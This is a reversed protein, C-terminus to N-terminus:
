NINTISKIKKKKFDKVLISCYKGAIKDYDDWMVKKNFYSYIAYIVGGHAICLVNDKKYNVQKLIGNYTDICRNLFDQQSKDLKVQSFTTMSKYNLDIHEGYKKIINKMKLKNDLYKNTRSHTVFKGDKFIIPNKYNIEVLGYEIRIKIDKKLKKKIHNKIVLCTQICRTLPSCYLYDVKNYGSEFLKKIAKKAIKEGNKTIPTDYKNEKYRKSRKWKKKDTRDLRESHRIYTIM